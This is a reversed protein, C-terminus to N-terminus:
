DVISYIAAFTALHPCLRTLGMQTQIKRKQIHSQLLHELMAPPKTLPLAQANSATHQQLAAGNALKPADPIGLMPNPSRLRLAVM